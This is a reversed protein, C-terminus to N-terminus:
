KRKKLTVLEMLERHEKPCIRSTSQLWDVVTRYELYQRANTDAQRALECQDAYEALMDLEVETLPHDKTIERIRERAQEYKLMWLPVAKRQGVNM